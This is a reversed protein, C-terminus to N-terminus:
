RKTSKRALLLIMSVSTKLFARFKSVTHVKGLASQLGEESTQVQRGIQHREQSATQEVNSSPVAGADASHPGAKLQELRQQRFNAFFEATDDDDDDDSRSDVDFQMSIGKEKPATTDSRLKANDAEDCVVCHIQWNVRNIPALKLSIELSFSSFMVFM